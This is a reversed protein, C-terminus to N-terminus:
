HVARVALQLQRAGTQTVAVVAGAAGHDEHVAPREIEVDPLRLQRQGRLQAHHTVVPAAETQRRPDRRQVGVDVVQARQQVREPYNTRQQHAHRLARAHHEFEGRSM